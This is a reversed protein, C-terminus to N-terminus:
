RTWPPAPSEAVLPVQMCANMAPVVESFIGCVAKILEYGSCSQLERGPMPYYFQFGVWARTPYDQIADRIQQASRFNGANFVANAEWDGIEAVFGDRLLRKLERDLISGARCQRVLRHWDWDPQLLCGPYPEPGAAYGREIQLGSKFVAPNNDATIFLKACGFNVTNSIPKAARNAKPLWCIWQWYEGRGWRDTIFPTGYRQELHYKLIQTVREHPELNGVRIGRTFDIWETRFADGTPIEGAAGGAKGLPIWDKATGRINRTRKM